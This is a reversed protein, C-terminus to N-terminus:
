LMHKRQSILFIIKSNDETSGRIQLETYRLYLMHFTSGEREKRQRIRGQNSIPVWESRNLFLFNELRRIAFGPNSHVSKRRCVTGYWLRELWGDM